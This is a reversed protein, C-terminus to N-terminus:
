TKGPLVAEGGGADLLIQQLYKSGPYQQLGEKLVTEAEETRGLSRLALVRQRILSEAVNTRWEECEEAMGRILFSAADLRSLGLDACALADRHKRMRQLALAKGAYAEPFDPRSAIARDFFDIAQIRAPRAPLGLDRYWLLHLEGAYVLADHDSPDQELLGM